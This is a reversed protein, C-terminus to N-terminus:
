IILASSARPGPSRAGTAMQHSLARGCCSRDRSAGRGHPTTIFLRDNRQNGNLPRRCATELPSTTPSPPAVKHPSSTVTGCSAGDFVSHHQGVQASHSLDHLSCSPMRGNGRGALEGAASRVVDKAAARGHAARAFDIVPADAVLVDPAERHYRRRCQRFPVVEDDSGAM